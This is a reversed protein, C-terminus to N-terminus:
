RGWTMRRLVADHDWFHHKLAAGMHAILTLGMLIGTWYHVTSAVQEVARDGPVWPDSLAFWDFVMNEINLMDQLPSAASMIWGSLPLIFLGAYLITHSIHAAIRETPTCHEPLAPRLRSVALWTVRVLALAFVIFGWSKHTQTLRFQVI